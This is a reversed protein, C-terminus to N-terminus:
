EKPREDNILGKEVAEMYDQILKKVLNLETNNQLRNFAIRLEEKLRENESGTQIIKTEPFYYNHYDLINRIENLTGSTIKQDYLELYDTQSFQEGYKDLYSVLNVSGKTVVVTNNFPDFNRNFSWRAHKRVYRGKFPFYTLTLKTTSEQFDYNMRLFKEGVFYLEIIKSKQNKEILMKFIEENDSNSLRYLRYHEDDALDFSRKGKIFDEYKLPNLTEGRTIVDEVLSIQGRCGTYIAKEVLEQADKKFNYQMTALPEGKPINSGNCNVTTNSTFVITKDSLLTIFNKGLEIIKTTFINRFENVIDDASSVSPPLPVTEAGINFSLIFLALLLKKM